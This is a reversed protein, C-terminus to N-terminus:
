TASHKVVSFTSALLIGSTRFVEPRCELAVTTTTPATILKHAAFEETEGPSIVALALQTDNHISIRCEINAASSVMSPVSAYMELVDGRSVAVQFSVLIVWGITVPAALSTATVLSSGDVGQPGQPGVPGQPGQVGDAGSAGQPGVPGQPGQVGDAGPEGQPGPDGKVTQNLMVQSENKPDCSSEPRVFRAAGTDRRVCAKIQEGATPQRDLGECGTLTAAILAVACVAVGRFKM